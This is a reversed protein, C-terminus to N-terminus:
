LKQTKTFDPGKYITTDLFDITERNQASKLKISQNHSNLTKVFQAFEFESGTWIGWIDNLYRFYYALAKECKAIAEEEWSAM